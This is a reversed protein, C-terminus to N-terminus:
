RPPIGWEAELEEESFVVGCIEKAHQIIYNNIAIRYAPKQMGQYTSLRKKLQTLLMHRDAGTGAKKLIADRLENVLLELKEFSSDESYDEQIGPDYGTEPHLKGKGSLFQKLEARYYRLIVFLYFVFLLVLMAIIYESWTINNLM